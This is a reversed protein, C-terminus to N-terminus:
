VNADCQQIRLWLQVDDLQKVHLYFLTPTSHLLSLKHADTRLMTILQYCAPTYTYTVMSVHQFCKLYVCVSTLM